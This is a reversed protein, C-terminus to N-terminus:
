QMSSAYKYGAMREYGQVMRNQDEIPMETTIDMCVIM